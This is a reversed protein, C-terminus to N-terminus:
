PNNGSIEEQLEEIQEKLKPIVVKARNIWDVLRTNEKALKLVLRRSVVLRDKLRANELKLSNKQPM